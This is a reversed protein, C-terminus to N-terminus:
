VANWEEIIFSNNEGISVYYLQEFGETYSPIQLKKYTALLGVLPISNKRKRNRIKCEKLNSKFYYGIIKFGKEQAPIIYRKRDEITPNTNDIVLSQKAELCANFLIKERHRTKLMDLNIRIHSNIFKERYLSSKGVAQLGIFIIAEM